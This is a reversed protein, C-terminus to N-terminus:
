SSVFATECSEAARRRVARARPACASCPAARRRFRVLGRGTPKRRKWASCGSRHVTSGSALPRDRCPCFHGSPAEAPEDKLLSAASGHREGLHRRFEHRSTMSCAVRMNPEPKAITVRPSRWEPWGPFPRQSEPTGNLALQRCPEDAHVETRGSNRHRDRAPFFEILHRRAATSRGSGSPIPKPRNIAKM